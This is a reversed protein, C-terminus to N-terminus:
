ASRKPFLADTLRERFAQKLQLSRLQGINRLRGSELISSIAALMCYACSWGDEQHYWSRPPTHMHTVVEQRGLYQQVVGGVHEAARRCLDEPICAPLTDYVHVQVTHALRLDVALLTWHCKNFNLPLLYIDADHARKDREAALKRGRADGPVILNRLLNDEPM